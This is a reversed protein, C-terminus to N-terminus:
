LEDKVNDSGADVSFSIRDALTKLIKKERFRLEIALASRRVEHMKAELRARELLALSGDRISKSFEDHSERMVRLAYEDQDITTPYRTLRENILNLAGVRSVNRPVGSEDIDVRRGEALEAYAAFLDLSAQTPSRPVCVRWPVDFGAKLITDSYRKEPELIMLVCNRMDDEDVDPLYGFHQLSEGNNWSGFRECIEENPRYDRKAYVVVEDAHKDYVAFGADEAEADKGSSDGDDDNDDDGDGTVGSSVGCERIMDLVPVLAPGEKGSVRVARSHVVAWAWRLAYLSKSSSQTFVDTYVDFVRRRLGGWMKNILKFEDVIDKEYTDSGRLEKASADSWFTPTDFEEPMARFYDMFASEERREFREYILCLVLATKEDKGHESRLAALAAGLPHERADYASPHITENWRVRVYAEMKEVPTSGVRLGLRGNVSAFGFADDGEGGEAADGLDVGESADLGGRAKAEDMWKRAFKVRDVRTVSSSSSSSGEVVVVVNVTMLVTALVCTM